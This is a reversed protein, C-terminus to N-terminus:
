TVSRKKTLRHSILGALCGLVLGGALSYDPEWLFIKIYATQVLVLFAAILCARNKTTFLAYSLFLAHGSYFFIPYYVRVLSVIMILVDLFYTLKSLQEHRTLRDFIFLVIPVSVPVFYYLRYYEREGEYFFLIFLTFFVVVTLTLRLQFWFDLSSMQLKFRGLASVLDTSLNM